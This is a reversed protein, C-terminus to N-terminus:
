SLNELKLLSLVDFKKQFTGSKRRKGTESLRSYRVLSMSKSARKKKLSLLEHITFDSERKLNRLQDASRLFECSEKWDFRGGEYQLRRYVTM